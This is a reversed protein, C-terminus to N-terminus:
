AHVHFRHPLRVLSFVLRNNIMYFFGFSARIDAYGTQIIMMRMKAIMM